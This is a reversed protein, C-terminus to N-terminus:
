LLLLFFPSAKLVEYRDQMSILEDALRDRETVLINCKDGSKQLERVIKNREGFAWDRRYMAVEAERWAHTLEQSLEEFRCKLLQTHKDINEAPTEFLQKVEFCEKLIKDRHLIAESREKRAADREQKKMELEQRLEEFKKVIGERDKVVNELREKLSYSEKVAHDRDVLVTNIEQRLCETEHQVKEKEELHSEVMKQSSALDEQLKEIERHVSDRESMVLKYEQLAANREGQLKSIEKSHRMRYNMESEKLASKLQQESKILSQLKEDRDKLANEYDGITAGFQQKLADREMLMADREQLLLEYKENTRASEEDLQNLKSTVIAYDAQMDDLKEQLAEERLDSKEENSNRGDDLVTESSKRINKTYLLNEKELKERERLLVIEEYDQQLKAKGTIANDYQAAFSSVLDFNRLTAHKRFKSNM